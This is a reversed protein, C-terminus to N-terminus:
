HILTEMIHALSGRAIIHHPPTQHWAATLEACFSCMDNKVWEGDVVHPPTSVSMTHLLAPKLLAVFVLLCLPVQKANFMDIGSEWQQPHKMRKPLQTIFGHM